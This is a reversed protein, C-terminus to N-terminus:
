YVLEITTAVKERASDSDLDVHILYIGPPVLQNADDRGDWPISFSGGGQEGSFLTRVRRGALDFIQVDLPTSNVLRALDYNVRTVDNIGDGNPSFPRPAATINILLKGGAGAIPVDVSLGRQNVDGVPVIDDDAAGLQAVNGPLVEQGVAEGLSAFGSFKTGFRLVRCRFRINLRSAQNAALSSQTIAPFRVKFRRDEVAEIAFANTADQAPLASLDADSFDAAASSGDPFIVEITEIAEVRVPTEIEFHDFGQDVGPRISTPIVAYTFTESIALETQRPFIEGVIQAAPPPSAVTFALPGIGTAATLDESSFEVRFQIYRRPGPSIIRVGVQDDDINDLTIDAGELDYPGSWASWSELDDTVPGKTAGLKSHDDRTLALENKEELPLAAYIAKAEDGQEGFLLQDLDVLGTSTNAQAGVKWPVIVKQDLVLEDRNFVLPTDDAGTRTRVQVGAFGNLGVSDEVWRINGWLALDPGMDFINSVYEAEPVFGTGFVRFEAIEFGVSTRSLLRIFRLYQPPIILDVVANDNPAEIKFSSLIPRGESQSDESGDNFFLEYAKIFDAQFPFAPAPLNPHANRPFFQIRSVGFRAGLDFDVIMGRIVTVEKRELATDGDEDLMKALELEIGGEQSNISTVSGGRAILGQSLNVSEEIQQPFVWGTRGEPFDESVPDFELVNGPTNGTGTEEIGTKYVAQITGGGSRWDDGDEGGIKITRNQAVASHFLLCLFVLSGLLRIKHM